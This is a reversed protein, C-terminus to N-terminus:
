RSPSRASSGRSRSPSPRASRGAETRDRASHATTAWIIRESILMRRKTKKAYVAAREFDAGADGAMVAAYNARDDAVPSPAVDVSPEPQAVKRPKAAKALKKVPGPKPQQNKAILARICEGVRQVTRGAEEAIKARSWDPHKVLLAHVLDFAGEPPDDNAVDHRRVEIHEGGIRKAWRVDIDTALVHGSPAM